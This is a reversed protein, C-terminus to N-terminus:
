RVGEAGACREKEFEAFVEFAEIHRQWQDGYGGAGPLINRDRWACWLQWLFPSVGDGLAM